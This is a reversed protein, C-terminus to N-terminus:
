KYNKILAIGKPHTVIGIANLSYRTEQVTNGVNGGIAVAFGKEVRVILDCHAAFHQWHDPDLGGWSVPKGHIRPQQEGAKNPDADRWVCIVDGVAAPLAGLPWAQFPYKAPDALLNRKFETVYRSHALAVPFASGAGATAFLYSIFAASWPQNDAAAEDVYHDLQKGTLGSATYYARLRDKVRKDGETLVVEKGRKVTRWMALETYALVVLVTTFVSM